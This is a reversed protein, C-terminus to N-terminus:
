AFFIFLLSNFKTQKFNFTMEIRELQAPSPVAAATDATDATVAITLFCLHTIRIFNNNEDYIM